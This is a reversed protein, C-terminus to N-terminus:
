AALLLHSTEVPRFEATDYRAPGLAPRRFDHGSLSCVAQARKYYPDLDRKGIPWGSYAIWPRYEFDSVDFPVCWGNWCNTSGGFYRMRCKDLDTHQLGVSEGAYLAQSAEEPQHAGSEILAISLHSDILELALSIGAAGAGVICVDFELQSGTGAQRLDAFM